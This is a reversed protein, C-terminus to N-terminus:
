AREVFLWSERTALLLAADQNSLRVAPQGDVEILTTLPGASRIVIEATDPDELILTLTETRHDFDTVTSLDEGASFAIGFDDDGLGGTLLDGDDGFLLDDGAGGDLQDPGREAVDGSTVGSAVRNLQADTVSSGFGRALAGRLDAAIQSMEGSVRDFEVGVLTDNGDDGRLLDSGSSGILLDNGEGGTVTDDGAGGVLLDDGSAGDVVDNGGGGLVVDIGADGTLLDNGLEGVVVDNGELGEITDRGNGGLLIDNLVTGAMEDRGSTGAEVEGAEDSPTEREPAVDSGGGIALGGLVLLPLLLLLEM